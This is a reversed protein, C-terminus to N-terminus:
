ASVLEIARNPALATILPLQTEYIDWMTAIDFVFSRSTSWFPSEDPAFCPKILSHYLATAFVTRQESTAGEVAIRDFHGRWEINTHTRRADFSRPETG